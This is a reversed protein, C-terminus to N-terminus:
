KAGARRARRPKSPAAPAAAPELAGPSAEKILTSAAAIAWEINRLVLHEGLLYDSAMTTDAGEHLTVEAKLLNVGRLYGALARADDLLAGATVLASGCAQDIIPPVLRCTGTDISLVALADEIATEFSPTSDLM